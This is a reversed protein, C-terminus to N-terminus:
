AQPEDARVYKLLVNGTSFARTGVPRLRLPATLSAFLAKGQGLATPAILFWFDDILEAEALTAFLEAGGGLMIPPGDGARMARVASVM